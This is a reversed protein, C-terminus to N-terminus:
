NENFIFSHGVRGKTYSFGKGRIPLTMPVKNFSNTHMTVEYLIQPTRVVNFTTMM